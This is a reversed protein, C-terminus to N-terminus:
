EPNSPRPEPPPVPLPAKEDLPLLLNAFDTPALHFPGTRTSCTATALENPNRSVAELSHETGSTTKFRVKLCAPDRSPPQADTPALYRLARLRALTQALKNANPQSPTGDGKAFEWRNQSRHLSAAPRGPISIEISQIDEPTAPFLALPQWQHAETFIDTLISNPLSVIFPEDDLKAFVHTDSSSGFLISVIPKDGATTESTNESAFSSLTLHLRPQDLGYKPLDTAVDSVFEAVQHSSLLTLLDEAASDQVPTDAPAKRLWGQASRALLLAPKGRPEILIRDVIDREFQVLHRDRIDNPKIDLLQAIASPLLLVTDRDSIKGYVMERRASDEPQSGIQLVLPAKADELHLSLTGRPEQLGFSALNASDSVFAQVRASVTQSLLDQLRSDNARAKLPKLLSWHLDTRACEIEGSKTKLIARQIQASPISTLRHDRFTDVKKGLLTRIESSVVHVDPSNELKAYIRGEVASDKGLLLEVPKQKPGSLRIRSEPSTLGFERLREKKRDDTERPVAAESHLTELSTFVQSLVLPDARDQLPEQIRWQDRARRLEIRTESSRITISDIGDRDIRLLHRALDAKELTGPLKNEVLFIYAAAAAVLLLLFLTLRPKMAASPPPQTDPDAPSGSASVPSHLLAPSPSLSWSLSRSSSTKPSTSGSSTKRRQLSASSNNGTSSGTSATSHSTSASRPSAFARRSLWGANGVLIMRSTEVNVRRDTVAGKELAAALELPGAHDRAPDFSPPETLSLFETEGWFDKVSRLLPLIRLSKTQARQTDLQFSQTPGLLQTTIGALDKFVERGTDTYTAGPSSAVIPKVIIQQNDDRAFGMSNRLVRDHTPVACNELLFTDLRDTRGEPDLLLFLRGNKTWYQSLIHIERESYDARAGFGVLCSADEPVADVESLNLPHLQINQRRCQDRFTAIHPSDIKPEGHGALLYAKNQREEVLELLATSVAQEGKFSLIRPAQGTLASLPDAQEFDAMAQAQIFRTRGNYELLIFNENSGFKYNAALEKARLVNLYPDVSEVELKKKSAFEFERLLNGVDSSIPSASNFFVIARAPKRLSRLIQKTVPSLAFKQSRSFDWRKFRHIAVYNAMAVLALLLLSQLVVNSGIRLRQIRAPKPNPVPDSTQM